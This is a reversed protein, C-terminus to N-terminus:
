NCGDVLISFLFSLQFLGFCFIELFLGFLKNELLSEVLELLLLLFHFGVDFLLLFFDGVLLSNKDLLFGGLDVIKGFNSLFGVLGSFHLQALNFGLHVLFQFQFLSIGFELLLFKGNFDFLEVILVFRILFLDLENLLLALGFQQSLGFLLGGLKRFQLGRSRTKHVFQLGGGFLEASILFTNLEELFHDVISLIVDGLKGVLDLLFLADLLSKM